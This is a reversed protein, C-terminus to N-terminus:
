SHLDKQPSTFIIDIALAVAGEMGARHEIESKYVLLDKTSLPLCYELITRHISILFQPGIRSVGGGIVVLSPNMFSVLAALMKGITHGAEIIINNAVKDGRVVAAGVDEPLLRGGRENMLELLIPSHGNQAARMAQEAIAPGSAFRELCGANGCHCVPGNPDISVHAIHGPYGNTGRYIEGNIVIGCGIGTGVKVFMFNQHDRGIGARLEGLAMLNADNEVRISAQPFHARTYEIISFDEWGVMNAPSLIAGTAKEVPAPVGIGVSLVKEIPVAHKELLSSAEALLMDMVAAPKDRRLHLMERRSEVIRGQFDAVCIDACTSGCYIGLVYAFHPNLDVLGPRRGGSSAGVQVSQLMGRDILANTVQTIKSLSYGLLDVLQNRTLPGQRRVYGLAEIELPDLSTRIQISNTSPSM